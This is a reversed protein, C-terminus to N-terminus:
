TGVEPRSETRRMFKEWGDAARLRLARSPAGPQPEPPTYRRGSAGPTRWPLEATTM